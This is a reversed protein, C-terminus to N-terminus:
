AVDRARAYVKKAFEELTGPIRLIIFRIEAPAYQTPDELFCGFDDTGYKDMPRVLVPMAVPPHADKRSFSIMALAVQHKMGDKAHRYAWNLEEIIKTQSGVRNKIQGHMSDEGTGVVAPPSASASSAKVESIVARIHPRVLLGFIDLGRTPQGPVEKERIRSAPITVEDLRQLADYALIEAVENRPTQLHVPQNGFDTMQPIVAERVESVLAALEGPSAIPGLDASAASLSALLESPDVYLEAVLRAVEDILKDGDAVDYCRYTHGDVSVESVLTYRDGGM